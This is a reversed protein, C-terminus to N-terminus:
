PFEEIKAPHNSLEFCGIRWLRALIEIKIQTLYLVLVSLEIWQIVWHIMWHLLVTSYPLGCSDICISSQVPGNLGIGHRHVTCVDWPVSEIRCVAGTNLVIKTCCLLTCYLVTYHVRNVPEEGNVLDIRQVTGTSYRCQQLTLVTSYLILLAACRVAWHLHANLHKIVVCKSYIYIKCFRYLVTDSSIQVTCCRYM